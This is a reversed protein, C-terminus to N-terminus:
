TVILYLSSVPKVSAQLIILSHGSQQFSNSISPPHTFFIDRKNTRIENTNSEQTCSAFIGIERGLDCPNDGVEMAESAVVTSSSNVGDSSVKPPLDDRVAMTLSFAPATLSPVMTVNVRSLTASPVIEGGKAVVDFPIALASKVAPFVAGPCVFMVACDPVTTLAGCGITMLAGMFPLM